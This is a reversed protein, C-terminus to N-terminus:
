ASVGDFNIDVAQVAEASEASEIATRLGWKRAYLAQGYAIVELRMTKLQDLTVSHFSNDAACFTTEQTGGAEMSTILGEIDRNSRETADIVFGASSTVKGTEEAAAFAAGLRALAAARAEELTVLAGQPLGYFVLTQRLGDESLGGSEDPASGFARGAAIHDRVEPADESVFAAAAVSWIRGDALKYYPPLSFETM